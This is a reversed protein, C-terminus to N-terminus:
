KQQKGANQYATLIDELIKTLKTELPTQGSGYTDQNKHQNNDLINKKLAPFRQKFLSDNYCLFPNSLVRHGQHEGTKEGIIRTTILYYLFSIFFINLFDM